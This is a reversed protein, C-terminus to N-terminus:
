SERVLRCKFGKSGSRRRARSALWQWVRSGNQKRKGEEEERKKHDKVLLNVQQVLM